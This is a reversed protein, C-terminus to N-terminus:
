LEEKSPITNLFYDSWILSNLTIGEGKQELNRLLALNIQFSNEDTNIKRADFEVVKNKDEKSIACRFGQSFLYDTLTDIILYYGHATVFEPKYVLYRHNWQM